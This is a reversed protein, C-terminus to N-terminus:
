NPRKPLEWFYIEYAAHEFCGGDCEIRNTETEYFLDVHGTAGFQKPNVPKIAFIGERNKLKELVTGDQKMKSTVKFHFTPKPFNRKMWDIMEEASLIYYKGNSGKFTRVITSKLIKVNSNNLAISIRMACSNQNGTDEYTKLVSGGVENALEMTTKGGLREIHKPYALKFDELYPLKLLTQSFGNITMICILVTAYALLTYLKVKKHEM